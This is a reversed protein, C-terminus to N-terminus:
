FKEKITYPAFILGKRHGGSFAEGLIPVKKILASIGYLSPMVAGHLNVYKENLNITGEMTFDFHPGDAEIDDFVITNDNIKLKGTMKTFQMSNSTLSKLLGPFSIISIIKAKFSPDILVFRELTFQGSSDNMDFTMNLAGAKIKEYLGLGALIAGANETKINWLGPTSIVAEITKTGVNAKFIGTNCTKGCKLKLAISDFTINNKMIAAQINANISISSLGSNSGLNAVMKPIDESSLDISDANIDCIISRADKKIKINRVDLGRTAKIDINQEQKSLNLTGNIKTDENAYQIVFDPNKKTLRAQITLTAPSDVKKDIGLFNVDFNARTLSSHVRLIGPSDPANKYEVSTDAVGRTIKVTGSLLSLKSLQSEINMLNQINPDDLNHTFTFYSTNNNITSNGFVVVSKGDFVGILEKAKLQVLNDFCNFEVKKISSRINYTTELDDQFPIILNISTDAIGKLSRLDIGENKLNDLNVAPILNVLDSIPGTAVSKARMKPNDLYWDLEAAGNTFHSKGSQGSNVQFILKTGSVKVDTNINSLIPFDKHYQLYLHSIKFEGDLNEASISDLNKLDINFKLNGFNINGSKLCNDLFSLLRPNNSIIDRFANYSLLNINQVRLIGRVLDDVKEVDLVFSSSDVELNCKGSLNKAGLTSFECGFRHKSGDTNTISINKKNNLLGSNYNLTLDLNVAGDNNLFFKCNELDIKLSLELFQVVHWLDYNVRIFDVSARKVGRTDVLKANSINLSSTTLEVKEFVLNLGHLHGKYKIVQEVIFNPKFIFVVVIICILSFVATFLWSVLKM